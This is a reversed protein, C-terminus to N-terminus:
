GLDSPSVVTTRWREPRGGAAGSFADPRGAQPRGPM